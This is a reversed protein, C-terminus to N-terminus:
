DFVLVLTKLYHFGQSRTGTTGPSIAWAQVGQKFTLVREVPITWDVDPSFFQLMPEPYLWYGTLIFNRILWPLLTLIAAVVYVSVTRYEKQRIFNFVSLLAILLITIGVDQLHCWVSCSFCRGSSAASDQRRHIWGPACIVWYFV